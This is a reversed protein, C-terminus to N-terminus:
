CFGWCVGSLVDLGGSAMSAQMAIFGSSRGMLKVIGLGRYGSVAEVKAALLARQAEEVATDFGFCKDIQLVSICVPVSVHLCCKPTDFESISCLCQSPVCVSVCARRVYISAVNVLPKYFAQHHLCSIPHRIRRSSVGPQVVCAPCGGACENM